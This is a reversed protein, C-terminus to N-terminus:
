KYLPALTEITDLHTGGQNPESSQTLGRRAEETPPGRESGIQKGVATHVQADRGMDLGGALAVAQGRHATELRSRGGHREQKSATDQGRGGLLHRSWRAPVADPMDIGRENECGSPRGREAQSGCGSSEAERSCEEGGVRGGARLCGACGIRLRGVSQERCSRDRTSWRGTVM